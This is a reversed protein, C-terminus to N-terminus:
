LVTSTANVNLATAASTGSDGAGLTISGNDGSGTKLGSSLITDGGDKNVGTTGGGLLKLDKGHGESNELKITAGTTGWGPQLSVDGIYLKSVTNSSEIDFTGSNITLYQKDSISFKAKQMYLDADLNLQRIHDDSVKEKLAAKNRHGITKGHGFNYWKGNIKGFLINVGKVTTLRLDGDRGESNSPLKTQVSLKDSSIRQRIKTNINSM